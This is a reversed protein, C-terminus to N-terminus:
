SLFISAIAIEAVSLLTLLWRNVFYTKILRQAVPKKDSSSFVQVLEKLGIYFIYRSLVNEHEDPAIEKLAQSFRITIFVMCTTASVIYIIPMFWQSAPLVIISQPLIAGNIVVIIVLLLILLAHITYCIRIAKRFKDM